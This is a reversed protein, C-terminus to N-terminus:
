KERIWEMIKELFECVSEAKSCDNVWYYITAMLQTFENAEIYDTNKIMLPKQIVLSTTYKHHFSM